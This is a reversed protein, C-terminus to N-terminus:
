DETSSTMASMWKLQDEVSLKSVLLILDALRDGEAYLFATPVRLAKALLHATTYDPVHKGTEYQNVRSSASNEDIGAAIGLAKQSLGIVVRAQKLRKGVPCVAKKTSM